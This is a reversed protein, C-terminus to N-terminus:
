WGPWELQDGKFSVAKFLLLTTQTSVGASTQQETIYQMLLAPCNDTSAGAGVM